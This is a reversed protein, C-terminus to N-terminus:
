MSHRTLCWPYNPIHRIYEESDVQISINIKADEPPTQRFFKQIKYDFMEHGLPKMNKLRKLSDVETRDRCNLRHIGVRNAKATVTPKPKSQCFKAFHNNQQCKRCKVGYAECSKERTAKDAREGHGTKGCFSCKKVKQVAFGQENSKYQTGVKNIQSSAMIGDTLVGASRKGAERAEVFLITAPLDMEPSKSLVEEKTDEDFLGRVMTNLIEKESYSVEETCTDSTCEVTLKCVGALGHLRAVISVLNSHHPVSLCRM